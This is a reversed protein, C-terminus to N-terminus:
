RIRVFSGYSQGNSAMTIAAPSDYTLVYDVVDGASVIVCYDIRYIHTTTGLSFNERCVIDGNVRLQLSTNVTGPNGRTITCVASTLYTGDTPVTYEGTSTNYNGDNFGYPSVDNFLIPSQGAIAFNENFAQLSFGETYGLSSVERIQIIGSADRVLLNTETNDVTPDTTLTINNTEFDQTSISEATINDGVVNGSSVLSTVILNGISPNNDVIIDTGDDMVVGATGSSQINTINTDNTIGGEFHAEGCVTLGNYVKLSDVYLDAWGKSGSDVLLSSSM